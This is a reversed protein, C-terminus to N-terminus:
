RGAAEAPAAESAARRRRRILVGSGLALLALVVLAGVGIPIRDLLGGSDNGPPPLPHGAAAALKRVARLASRTLGQSGPQVAIRALVREEGAVQEGNRYVGFGNPMVVVLTKKYLFLLEQGLFPAYQKPKLWLAQVLGLDAQSAIIAVKIPYGAEKTAALADNLDDVLPEPLDPGYPLYVDQAYLVDSAPDGDAAALPPTALVVAALLAVAALRILMPGFAVRVPM